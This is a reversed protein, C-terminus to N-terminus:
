TGLVLYYPINNLFRRNLIVKRLAEHAPGGKTLYGKDGKVEGSLPTMHVSVSERKVTHFTGNMNGLLM